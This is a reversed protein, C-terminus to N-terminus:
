INAGGVCRSLFSALERNFGELKQYHEPEFEQFVRDIPPDADDDWRTQRASAMIVEAQVREPNSFNRTIFVIFSIKELHNPEAISLATSKGAFSLRFTLDGDLVVKAIASEPNPRGRLFVQVCDEIAPWYEREDLIELPVRAGPDYAAKIWPQTAAGLLAGLFFGGALFWYRLRRYHDVQTELRNLEVAFREPDPRDRAM